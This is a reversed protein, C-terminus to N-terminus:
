DVDMISHGVLLIALLAASVIWHQHFRILKLKIGQSVAKFNVLLGSIMIIVAFLLGLEPFPNNQCNSLFLHLVGFGLGGFSMISHLPILYKKSFCYIREITKQNSGIYATRQFILKLIKNVLISVFSFAFFFATTEGTFENGFEPSFTKFNSNTIVFIKQSTIVKFINDEVLLFYILTVSISLIVFIGLINAEGTIRPKKQFPM